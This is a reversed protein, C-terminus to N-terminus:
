KIKNIIDAASLGGIHSVDTDKLKKAAADTDMNMFKELIANKDAETLSAKFRKGEESNLFETVAETSAKFKDKDMGALIRSLKGSINEKM